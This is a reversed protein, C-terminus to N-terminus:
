WCEHIGDDQYYVVFLWGSVAQALSEILAEFHVDCGVGPFGALNELTFWDIDEESIKSESRVRSHIEEIFREGQGFWGDGDHHSGVARDLGRHLCHSPAGPM